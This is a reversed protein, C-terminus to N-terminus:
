PARASSPTESSAPSSPICLLVTERSRAVSSARPRTRRAPSRKAGPGSSARSPARAARRGRAAGGGARRERAEAALRALGHVERDALCEGQVDVLHLRGSRRRSRSSRGSSAAGHSPSRCPEGRRPRRGSGALRSRARGRPRDTSRSASESRLELPDAAAAPRCATSSSSGPGSSPPPAPRRGSPRRRRRQRPRRARGVAHGLLAECLEAPRTRRPRRRSRPAGRTM